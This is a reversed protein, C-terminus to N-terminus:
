KPDMKCSNTENKNQSLASEVQRAQPMNFRNKGSIFYFLSFLFLKLGNQCKPDVEIKNDTQKSESRIVSSAGVQFELTQFKSYFAQFNTLHRLILTNDFNDIIWRLLNLHGFLWLNSVSHEDMTQGNAKCYKWWAVYIFWDIISYICM